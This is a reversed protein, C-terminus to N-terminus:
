CVCSCGPGSGPQTPVERGGQLPLRASECGEWALPCWGPGLGLAPSPSPVHLAGTTVTGGPGGQCCWERVGWRCPACATPMATDWPCGWEQLVATCKAAAAVTLLSPPPLLAM